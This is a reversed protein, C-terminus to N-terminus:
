LNFSIYSYIFHRYIGSLSILYNMSDLLHVPNNNDIEAQQLDMLPPSIPQELIPPQPYTFTPSNLSLGTERVGNMLPQVWEVEDEHKRKGASVVVGARCVVSSTDSVVVGHGHEDTRLRKVVSVENPVQYNSNPPRPAHRLVSPRNLQTTAPPPTCKPIPTKPSHIPNLATAASSSSSLTPLSIGLKAAQETVSPM